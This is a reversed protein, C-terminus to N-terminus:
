QAKPVQWGNQIALARAKAPDNGAAQYFQMATDKDIVKGGGQPLAGSTKGGSDQVLGQGVNTNYLRNVNGIGRNLNDRAAQGQAESFSVMDKQMSDTWQDGTLLNKVTGAFRQAINGQQLLRQAEAENYRKTGDPNTVGILKLLVGRAATVNGQAAQQLASQLETIQSMKEEYPKLVTGEIKDRADKNTGMQQSVQQRVQELAMQYPQKAKAEAGAVAGAQNAMGSQIAQAQPNGQASQGALYAPTPSYQPSNPNSKGTVAATEAQAQNGKQTAEFTQAKKYAADTLDQSTRLFAHENDLWDPNYAAPAKSIEQLALERYGQPLTQAYLVARQKVTDYTQQEAGAPANRAVQFLDDLKSQAAQTIKAHQTFNEGAQVIESQKAANFDKVANWYPTRAAPPVDYQDFLKQTKAYDSADWSKDHQAQVLQRQGQVEMEFQQGRLAANKIEQATLQQGLFGAKIQMVKAYQDLANPQQQQQGSLAVLPIGM